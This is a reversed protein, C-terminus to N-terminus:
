RENYKTNRELAFIETALFKQKLLGSFRFIIKVWDNSYESNKTPWIINSFTEYKNKM